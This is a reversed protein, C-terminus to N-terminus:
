SEKSPLIFRDGFPPLCLVEITVSYNGSPRLRHNSLSLINKIEKGYCYVRLGIDGDIIQIEQNPDIENTNIM